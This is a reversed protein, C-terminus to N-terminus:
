WDIPSEAFARLEDALAILQAKTLRVKYFQDCEETIRFFGPAGPCHEISFICECDMAGLLSSYDQSEQVDGGTEESLIKM